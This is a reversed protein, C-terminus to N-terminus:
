GRFYPCGMPKSIEGGEEGLGEIREENQLESKHGPSSKESPVPSGCPACRLGFPRRSITQRFGCTQQRCGFAPPVSVTLAATVM